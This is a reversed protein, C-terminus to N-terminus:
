NKIKKGFSGSTVEKPFRCAVKIENCHESLKRVLHKSVFGNGFITVNPKTTSYKRSFQFSQKLLSKM